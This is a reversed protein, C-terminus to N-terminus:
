EFEALSVVLRVLDVQRSISQEQYIHRLALLHHTGRAGIGWFKRIANM